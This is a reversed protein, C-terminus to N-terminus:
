SDDKRQKERLAPLTENLSGTRYGKLDVAVYSFGIQKMGDYIESRLPEQMIRGLEEPLVEIRALSGHVRVRFQFFGMDMLLQEGQQVMDLKGATIKEGYPIRSALCAFSPKDATPLGLERSLERVQAKTFGAALLPSKVHLQAIAQMGPRYDGADDANSGELVAALGQEKAIDLIRTFLLKKCLYCRRPPNDAFGSIEDMGVHICIQRIGRSECFAVAEGHERDPIWDASVSVAVARKGLVQAAVALLLTSDVGASFAVAASGAQRILEKLKEYKELILTNMEWWGNRVQWRM